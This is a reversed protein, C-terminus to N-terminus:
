GGPARRGRVQDARAWHGSDSHLSGLSEDQSKRFVQFSPELSLRRLFSQRQILPCEVVKRLRGGEGFCVPLKMGAQVSNVQSPGPVRHPLDYRPGRRDRWALGPVRQGLAPLCEFACKSQAYGPTLRDRPSSSAGFDAPRGPLEMGGERATHGLQKGHHGAGDALFEASGSGGFGLM